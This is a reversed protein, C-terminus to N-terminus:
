IWGNRGIGMYKNYICAVLIEWKFSSFVEKWIVGSGKEQQIVIISVEALIISGWGARELPFKMLISCSKSCPGGTETTSNRHFLPTTSQVSPLRSSNTLAWQAVTRRTILGVPQRTILSDTAYVSQSVTMAHVKCGAEHHRLALVLENARIFGCVWTWSGVAPCM